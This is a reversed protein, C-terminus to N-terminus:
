DFNNYYLNKFEISNGTIPDSFQSVNIFSNWNEFRVTILEGVSPFDNSFAPISITNESSNIIISTEKFSGYSTGNIIVNSIVNGNVVLDQIVIAKESLDTISIIKATRLQNTLHTSMNRTEQQDFGMDRSTQFSKNGVFFISYVVQLIIVLIALSIIVEVLTIGRQNLKLKKM